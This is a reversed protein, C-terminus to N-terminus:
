KLKYFNASLYSSIYLINKLCEFVLSPCQLYEDTSANHIIIDNIYMNIFKQMGTFLNSIIHQFSSPANTLGMSM